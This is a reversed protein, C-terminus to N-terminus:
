IVLRDGDRERHREKGWGDKDRLQSEAEETGVVESCFSVPKMWLDAWGLSPCIGMTLPCLPGHQRERQRDTRQTLTRAFLLLLLLILATLGEVATLAWLSLSLMLLWIHKVYPNLTQYETRIWQNCNAKHLYLSTFFQKDCSNCTSRIIFTPQLILTVTLIYILNLTFCSAQLYVSTIHANIHTQM